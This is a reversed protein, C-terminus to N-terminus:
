FARTRLMTSTRFNNKQKAHLQNHWKTKFIVLDHNSVGPMIDVTFGLRDIADSLFVLDLLSSTTVSVQSPEVVVQKLNFSFVIDLLLDSHWCSSPTSM